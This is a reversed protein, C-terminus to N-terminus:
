EHRLGEVTKLRSAILSPYVTALLCIAMAALGVSGIETMSLEYPVKTLYYEKTPLQLGDGGLLLLITSVGLIVGSAVGVVGIFGGMAVFSRVVSRNTAGLAKLVAIDRVREVIVMVLSSVILLSSVLVIFALVIFMAIKELELATFLSRNREKWGLAELQSHNAELITRIAALTEDAQSTENVRVEVRNTHSGLNFFRQADSLLMYAMKQDYEYMGSMFIGAVRFTKVKPRLGTPGIDGDPTLVHLEEGTRVDLSKALEAGLMISPYLQPTPPIYEKLEVLETADSKTHREDLSGLSGPLGDIPHPMPTPFRQYDSILDETKWLLQVDGSTVKGVLQESSSLAERSMGKVTVNVMVNTQSSIMVEGTVFTHAESVNTLSQIEDELMIPRDIIDTASEPQIVIHANTRVIKAQLDQAFGGMVSLVVILAWVGLSVGVISMFTPLSVWNRLKMVVPPIEQHKSQVLSPLAYLLMCGGLIVLTWTMLHAAAPSFELCIVPYIAPGRAIIGLLVAGAGALLWGWRRQTGHLWDSKTSALNSGITSSTRHSRLLTWGVFLSFNSQLPYAEFRAMLRGIWQASIMLCVILVSSLLVQGFTAGLLAAGVQIYIQNWPSAVSAVVLVCLALAFVLALTRILRGIKVGFAMCIAGVGIIFIAILSAIADLPFFPTPAPGGLDVSFLPVHPLGLGTLISGVLILGATIAILQGM